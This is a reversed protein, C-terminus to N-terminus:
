FYRELGSLRDYAYPKEAQLAGNEFYRKETGHRVGDKYPTEARLKGGPYYEGALGERLGNKYPIIRRVGDEDFGEVEGTIPNGAKDTIVLRSGSMTSQVDAERYVAQAPLSLVFGLLVPVILATFIRAKRQM